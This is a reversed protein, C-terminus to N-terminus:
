DKVLRSGRTYQLGELLSALERSLADFGSEEVLSLGREVLVQEEYEFRPEKTSFMENFFMTLAILFSLILFSIFLALPGFYLQGAVAFLGDLILVALAIFKFTGLNVEPKGRLRGERDLHIGKEASHHDMVLQLDVVEIDRPGWVGHNTASHTHTSSSAVSEERTRQDKLAAVVVNEAQVWLDNRWLM